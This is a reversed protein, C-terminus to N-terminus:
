HRKLRDRLDAFPQFTPSEHRPPTAVGGSRPAPRPGDDMADHRHQWADIVDADFRQGIIDANLFKRPDSHKIAM